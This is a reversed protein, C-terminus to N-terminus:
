SSFAFRALHHDANGFTMDLMTLRRLYHSIVAEDSTGIGGHLQIAQRAVFLSTQGVRAKAASAMRGKDLVGADSELTARMTIARAEETAIQMDVMRHQLAQFTGIPKGFQSRTKLYELTIECLADMAGVAEACQALISAKVAMGLLMGGGGLTGLVADAPVEVDALSIKSHRHNDVSRFSEMNKELRARPLLFLSIGKLEAGAGSTRAPIIFFDADAGDPVFNKQGSLIYGGGDERATTSVRLHEFRSDGDGLALAVRISGNAVREVFKNDSSKLLSSILVINSALPVPLLHKGVGNAIVMVDSANGGLGGQEEAFPLMLWGLNAMKEWLKSAGDAGSQRLLRHREALPWEERGFRDVSEALMAQDDSPEFDM